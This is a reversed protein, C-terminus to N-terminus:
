LALLLKVDIHEYKKTNNLQTGSTELLFLENDQNLVYALMPKINKVQFFFSISQLAFDKCEDVAHQILGFLHGFLGM